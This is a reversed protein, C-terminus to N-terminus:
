PTACFIHHRHTPSARQNCAAVVNFSPRHLEPGRVTKTDRQMQVSAGLGASNMGASTPHSPLPNPPIVLPLSQSCLIPHNNNSALQLLWRVTQASM